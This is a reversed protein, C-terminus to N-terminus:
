RREEPYSTLVFFRHRADNWRLVVVARESPVSAPRGRSLSRGIVRHADYHLAFNPRPGTRRQWTTLARTPSHLAAGVVAEATARDTYTSASSIQPERRLREALEADTRGVHRALTHGGQREDESLDRGAPSVARQDAPRPEATRIPQPSRAPEPAARRCDIATSTVIAVLLAIWSVRALSRCRSVGRIM